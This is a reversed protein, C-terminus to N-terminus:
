ASQGGCAVRDALDAAGTLFGRALRAATADLDAPVPTAHLWKRMALGFLTSHLSWALEIDAEAAEGEAAGGAHRLERCLPLVVEARVADLFRRDFGAGRLGASVLLRVWGDECLARCYSVAFAAVREDLPRARDEILTRWGRDWRREFLEDFARELLAEKDPFYRYLLPQTIGLREALARTQGDVGHECFFTVAEDVIMREREDRRLRGKRQAPAAEDLPADFAYVAMGLAGDFGDHLVRGAGGAGMAVMLPLLHENRPHALAGDHRLRYDALEHDAGRAVVGGLWRQFTEAWQPVAEEGPRWQTLNHVSAGSGIILIGDRRLHALARGLALHHAADAEPQVSLQAVPISAEPYMLMLPVWTAHDLGRHHDLAYAIGAARLAAVVDAALAIAGPAPYRLDYLHRPFGHFDHITSPAAAASITPVRTEWHATVVLIARPRPLDRGLSRLFGAAGGTQDVLTPAGHSVFLSPLPHAPM